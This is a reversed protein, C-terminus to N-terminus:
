EMRWPSFAPARKLVATAWGNSKDAHCGICPNPTGYKETMAPTIFSFTHARVKVDAITTEIKPMHCAVCASGVSSAAHLTHAELTKARPGNAGGPTHCTSCIENTPARLNAPNKSGHVDHCSFCTVGHRYMESSVFDNGQM